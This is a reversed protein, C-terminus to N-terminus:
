GRLPIVAAGERAGILSEVHTSVRAFADCRGEWAQDKNYRAILDVRVHGIALEAIDEAVGLRSMLTRATRRLDHLRFAVGSARQLKATLKTWGKLRGGTKSSPFVLPSTTIPEGTIVERMLPTLPVEHQAGTKAHEPVVVLRDALLHSRELGALEGRRAGTLLALRVLAGFAGFDGATQWLKRIQDDTLATGGNAAAALREARSRKPRRLGALVNHSARGTSVCWELFTRSHKRLEGAAGPKGAAELSAIASVFDRRTLDTVDKSMLRHLGRNLGSLVVKRAVIGRRELDRQYPGEEVLLARLTSSDRRKAEARTAAPDEGRAVQGALDRARKRAVNLSITPWAGIRVMRNKGSRGGATRYQFWFTRSSGPLIRVAFGTVQADWLMTQGTAPVGARSVATETLKRTM